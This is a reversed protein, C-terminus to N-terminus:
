LMTYVVPEVVRGFESPRWAEGWQTRHRVHNRAFSLRLRREAESQLRYLILEM